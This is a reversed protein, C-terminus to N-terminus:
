LHWPAARRFPSNMDHWWPRKPVPNKEDVRVMYCVFRAREIRKGTMISYVDFHYVCGRQEADACRCDHRAVLRYSPCGLRNYLTRGYQTSWKLTYQRHRFWVPAGTRPVFPKGDFMGM